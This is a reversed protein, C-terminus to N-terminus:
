FATQKMFRFYKTGANNVNQISPTSFNFFYNRRWLTLPQTLGMAMTRGSPYTLSFNGRCWRFDFGHSAPKYRLAEVLQAVALVMM